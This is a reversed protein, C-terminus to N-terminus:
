HKVLDKEIDDDDEDPHESRTHAPPAANERFAEIFELTRTQTLEGGFASPPLYVGQAQGTKMWIADHASSVSEIGLWSTYDSSTDTHWTVGHRSLYVTNWGVYRADVATLEELKRGMYTSLGWSVYVSLGAAVAIWLVTSLPEGPLLLWAVLFVAGYSVFRSAVTVAYHWSPKAIARLQKKLAQTDGVMWQFRFTLEMQSLDNQLKTM